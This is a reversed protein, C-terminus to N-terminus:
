PWASDRRVWGCIARARALGAMSIRAVDPGEAYPGAMGLADTRIRSHDTYVEVAMDLRDAGLGGM